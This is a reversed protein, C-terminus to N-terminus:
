CVSNLLIFLSMCLWWMSNIVSICTHNLIWLVVITIYQILSIFSVFWLIMEISSYFCKLFILMWEHYFSEIFNNCSSYILIIFAFGYSVDYLITFIQFNKELILFLCPYESKGSKNLMTNTARAGTILCAFCIFVDM